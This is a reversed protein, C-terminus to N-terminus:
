RIAQGTVLSVDTSEWQGDKLFHDTCKGKGFEAENIEYIQWRLPTLLIVGMNLQRQLVNPAGTGAEECYAKRVDERMQLWMNDLLKTETESKPDILSARSEWRYQTLNKEDYFCGSVWPHKRLHHWKPSDIHAKFALVQRDSLYHVHATRVGPLSKLSLTTVQCYVPNKPNSFAAIIKQRYAEPAFSM